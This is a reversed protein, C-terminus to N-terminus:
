CKLFSCVFLFYIGVEFLKDGDKFIDLMRLIDEDDNNVAQDNPDSPDATGPSPMSRSLCSTCGSAPLPNDKRVSADSIMPLIPVPAISASFPIELEVDNWEEENFPRAYQAGNRPGAGDKQFVKCVV